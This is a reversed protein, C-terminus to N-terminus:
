KIILASSGRLDKIFWSIVKVTLFTAFTVSFVILECATDAVLISIVSWIFVSSKKFKYISSLASLLINITFVTISFSSGSNKSNISLLTLIESVM